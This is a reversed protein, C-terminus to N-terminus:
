VVRTYSKCIDDDVLPQLGDIVHTWFGEAMITSAMYDAARNGKRYIHTIRWTYLSVLSLAKKWHAKFRWPVSLAHSHLLRVVFSSDSEFWVRSWGMRFTSEMAINIFALLDAELAAGNGGVFHFCGVVENLANRM